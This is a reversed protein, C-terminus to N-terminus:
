TFQEFSYEIRYQRKTYSCSCSCLLTTLRANACNRGTPLTCLVWVWVCMWNLVIASMFYRKKIATLVHPIALSTNLMIGPRTWIHRVMRGAYWTPHSSHHLLSCVDCTLLESMNAQIVFVCWDYISNVYINIFWDTHMAIFYIYPREKSRWHTYASLFYPAVAAMAISASPLSMAYRYVEQRWRCCLNYEWSYQQANKSTLYRGIVVCICSFPM